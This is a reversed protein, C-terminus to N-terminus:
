FFIPKSILLCNVVIENCNISIMGRRLLLKIMEIRGHRAADLFQQPNAHVIGVFSKWLDAM